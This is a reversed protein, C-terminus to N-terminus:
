FITKKLETTSKEYFWNSFSQVAPSQAYNKKTILYIEWCNNGDAPIVSRTNKLNKSIFDVCIGVGKNTVSFNQVLMMEMTTYYFKPQFGAQQCNAIFNKYLKFNHNVSIINERDLDKYFIKEKNYLWNKQNILFCLQDKVVAQGSFIGRNIPGITFGVDVESKFVAKECSLDDFEQFELFINPYQDAFEAFIDPGLANIVGFALAIKIHGRMGKKLEDVESSFDDFNTIVKRVKKEFEQGYDTLFVGNNERDFLAMDIEAELNKIAKSLGQQTIYLNKAAKSFNQDDCVQIFYKLQKIEM